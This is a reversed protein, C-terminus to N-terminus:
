EGKIDVPWPIAAIEPYRVAQRAWDQKVLLCQQLPAIKCMRKIWLSAEDPEGNLALATALKNFFIMNPFLSTVSRMWELEERSLGGKPEFRAYRMYDHWQTLLIVDPPYVPRTVEFNDWEMRLIRYSDEVRLYDRIICALLLGGFLSMAMFTWRRTKMVPQLGLRIHLVGIVMGVPLLFYAFYLPLELMAHNAVILVFLLLVASDASDVAKIIKWLWFLLFTSIAVGLPIGCWLVLDLFLNHSYSFFNHLAPHDVAVAMQAAGSQNWGYGFLPSQWIADIFSLWASLRINGSMRAAEDMVVQVNNQAFHGSFKLHTLAIVCIVFYLGLISVVWPLRSDRWLGKWIWSAAILLGLGVWATRSSTLAIGFLLFLAILIAGWGSIRKFLWGWISALLGWLLFTALQNPQGFNAHPRAAYSDMVWFQLGDLELWGYLQIGVSLIGAIGIALFLGDILQGPSSQEWQAGTILALLFGLLYAFSIWVNGIMPVIGFAYQIWPIFLLILVLINLTHWTVSARVKFAVVFAPILCVFAIWADTHFSLWPRYHIPMLWGVSLVCAWVSLFFPSMVLGARTMEILRDVKKSRILLFPM